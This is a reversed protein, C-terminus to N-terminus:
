FFSEPIVLVDDEKILADLRVALRQQKGDATRIITARNVLAFETMGGVAILVDLLLLDRRYALAQPRAAQGIVRAQEAHNGVFTTVMVAVVPEKIYLSLARKLNRGLRRLAFGPTIAL